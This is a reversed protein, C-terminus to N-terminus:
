FFATVVSASAQRDIRSLCRLFVNLLFSSFRVASVIWFLLSQRRCRFFYFVHLDFVRGITLNCSPERANLSSAFKSVYASFQRLSRRLKLNRISSAVIRHARKQLFLSYSRFSSSLSLILSPSDNVARKCSFISSINSAYVFIQCLRRGLKLIGVSLAFM